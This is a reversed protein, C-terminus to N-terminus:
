KKSGRLFQPTRGNVHLVAVSIAYILVALPAILILPTVYFLCAFVGIYWVARSGLYLLNEGAEEYTEKAEDETVGDIFGDGYVPEFKAHYNDTESHVVKYGKLKLTVEPPSQSM